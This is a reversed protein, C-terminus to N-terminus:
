KKKKPSGNKNFKKGKLADVVDDMEDAANKVRRGTEKVGAIVKEDVTTLSWLWKWGALAWICLNQLSVTWVIKLILKVIKM